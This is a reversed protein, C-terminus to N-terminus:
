GQSVRVHSTGEGITSCGALKIRSQLIMRIVRTSYFNQIDENHVKWWETVGEKTHWINEGKVWNQFTWVRNQGWSRFIFNWVRNSIKQEVCMKHAIFPQLRKWYRLFRWTWAVIYVALLSKGDWVNWPLSTLVRWRGTYRLIARLGCHM